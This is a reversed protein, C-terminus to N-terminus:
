TACRRPQRTSGKEAPTGPRSGRWSSPRRQPPGGAGPSPWPPRHRTSCPCSVLGPRRYEEAMGAPILNIGRGFAIEALWEEVTGSRSAVTPSADTRRDRLYWSRAFVPDTVLGAELWPEDALDEILVDDRGALRHDRGAVVLVPERELGLVELTDAGTFPMRVFAADTTSGPLGASPDDM